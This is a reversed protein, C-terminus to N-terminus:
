PPQRHSVLPCGVAHCITKRHSSYNPKWFTWTELTKFRVQQIEYLLSRAISHHVWRRTRVVDSGRELRWRLRRLLWNRLQLLAADQFHAYWSFQAGNRPCNWSIVIDYIGKSLASQDCNRWKKMIEQCKALPVLSLSLFVLLSCGLALVHTFSHSATQSNLINSFLSVFGASFYDLFSFITLDSCRLIEITGCVKKGGKYFM